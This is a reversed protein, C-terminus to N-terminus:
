LDFGFNESFIIDIHFEAEEPIDTGNSIILRYAKNKDYAGAKLNFRVRFVRESANASTRDAIVQHTDSVINGEDDTMYVSYTCPCVKDGIPETQFFDLAFLLNSVKRSESLLKLEANSAKVYKRSNKRMNRFLIVPVVFEQLSVGGHVYNEGGGAIKIRTQDKPTFGKVPMGGITADLGVSMFIDSAANPAALVYRRGSEYIDGTIDSQSVKDAETLPKYTYLFGHDATILIDTGQMDNTIIRLINSIEHLADECAEFVKTETSGKDGIADITNHYIYVVSKGSVLERRELRKMNLLDSYQVAVSDKNEVCLIREREATSRTPMGDILLDMNESLSLSRGPILAAMGFKTISPFIAQMAELTAAGRTTRSIMDRLEAATEFRLADSIIVFARARKASIPRVYRSYFDSQRGIDSVYGLEELDDSVANIWCENLEKLYWNQYLGEVYDVAHKLGDELVDNSDMLTCSFAYHFRRYFSDMEYVKEIYLKWIEKPDVIHFVGAYEHYFEQMRAIYYICDYYYSFKEIWGSTRRNEVAKLMLEPRVVHEAIDSFMRNLIVEHISPFIDAMLLTEISQKEFRLTLNMEQEVTRCLEWLAHNDERNRWEHVVSYCYAKNSESIFRELGKLTNENMTQALASVLLHVAFNELPREGDYIYGTYKQAFRWFANVSGFRKINNLAENDDEDMGGSLVAIFVDQASGGNLGALVAMIDTHLQLPTHYEHGLRHLKQMREKNEFFKGYLKVTKRMAPNADINLESMQMSVLDARYGESYLEIDRLWNEQQRQHPFPDYILYNGDPDDHLLLKKVVFNNTDTLRIIKVDPLELEDPVNEFEREEDHWFIIRRKYFEPLPASFRERLSAEISEKSM